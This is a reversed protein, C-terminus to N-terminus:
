YELCYSTSPQLPCRDCACGCCCTCWSYTGTSCVKCVSSDQHDSKIEQAFVACPSHAAPWQMLCASMLKCALYRPLPALAFSGATHVNCARLLASACWCKKERCSFTQLGNLCWLRITTTWIMDQLRALTYEMPSFPQIHM